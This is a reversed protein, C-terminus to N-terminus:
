ADWAAVALPWGGEFDLYFRMPTGASPWAGNLLSINFVDGADVLSNHNNDDWALLFVGRDVSTNAPSGDLPVPTEQSGYNVVILTFRLHDPATGPDVSDLHIYVYPVSGLLPTALSVTPIVATPPIYFSVTSVMDGDVARLISFSVFRCCPPPAQQVGIFFTDGTSVMGDADIDSWGVLYSYGAATLIATPEPNTKLPMPVVAGSTGNVSLSVLFTGPVAPPNAYGVTVVAVGNALSTQTLDIVCNKQPPTPVALYFAAVGLVVILGV